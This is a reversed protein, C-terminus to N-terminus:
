AMLAQWSDFLESRKLFSLHMDILIASDDSSLIQFEAITDSLAGDLEDHSLRYEELFLTHMFKQLQPSQAPQAERGLALEDHKLTALNAEILDRLEPIKKGYPLQGLLQRYLHANEYQCDYMCEVIPTVTLRTGQETICSLLLHTQDKNRRDALADVLSVANKHDPANLLHKLQAIDDTESPTELIEMAVAKIKRQFVTSYGALNTFGQNIELARQAFQSVQPNEHAVAQSLSEAFWPFGAVHCVRLGSILLETQNSELLQRHQNTATLLKARDSSYAYTNLIPDSEIGAAPVPAVASDLDLGVTSLIELQPEDQWSGSRGEKFFSWLNRIYYSDLSTIVFFIASGLLLLIVLFDQLHLSNKLIAMGGSTVMAAFSVVISILSVITGRTKRPVPVLCQRSMPLQISRHVLNYTVTLVVLPWFPPLILALGGLVLINIPQISLLASLQLRRNITRSIVHHFGLSLVYITITMASVFSAIQRASGFQADAVQYFVNDLVFKSVTAWAMIGAAVRVLPNAFVFRVSDSLAKIAPEKDEEPIRTKLASVRMRWVTIDFLIFHAILMSWAFPYLYVLLHVQSLLWVLAAAITRAVLEQGIVKQYVQRFIAPNVSAQLVMPGLTSGILDVTMVSVVFCTLLLGNLPTLIALHPELFCSISAVLAVGLVAKYVNYPEKDKHGRIAFYIYYLLSCLSAFFFLLSYSKSGVVKIFLSTGFIWCSNTFLSRCLASFFHPKYSISRANRLKM